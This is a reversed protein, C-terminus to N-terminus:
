QLNQEQYRRFQLNCDVIPEVRLRVFDRKRNSQRNRGPGAITRCPHSAPPVACISKGNVPVNSIHMKLTLSSEHQLVTLTEFSLHGHTYLTDNGSSNQLM